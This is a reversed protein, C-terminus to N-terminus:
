FSRTYSTGLSVMGLERLSADLPVSVSAELRSHAWTHAFAASLESLVREEERRPDLLRLLGRYGIRSSWAQAWRLTAATTLPVILPDVEHAPSLWHHAAAGVQLTLWPRVDVEAGLGARLTTTGHLYYGADHLLAATAALSSAHVNSWRSSPLSISVEYWHRLGSRANRQRASLTTNGLALRCCFTPYTASTSLPQLVALELSGLHLAARPELSLQYVTEYSTGHRTAESDLGLEIPAARETTLAPAVEPAEADDVESAAAPGSAGLAALLVPMWTRM